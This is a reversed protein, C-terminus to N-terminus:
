PAIGRQTHLSQYSKWPLRPYERNCRQHACVIKAPQDSYLFFCFLLSFCTYLILLIDFFSVDVPGGNPLSRVFELRNLDWLM